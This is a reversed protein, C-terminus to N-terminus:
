QNRIINSDTEARENIIQAQKLAKQYETRAQTLLKPRENEAIKINEKAAEKDKVATEFDGPRRVRNIQLDRLIVYFPNLSKKMEELLKVQFYGRMSQFATTNFHACADHVAARGSADLIQKYGNFDKFQLIIDYLYKPDAQFQVTVDLDISIGDQNLCSIENLQMSTFVSPFTIFAFGPSGVHLGASKVERQLQKTLRNYPVAIQYTNLRSISSLVLSVITILALAIGVLMLKLGIKPM